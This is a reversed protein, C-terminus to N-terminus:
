SQVLINMTFMNNIKFTSCSPHSKWNIMKYKLVCLALMGSALSTSRSNNLKLSKGTVSSSRILNPMRQKKSSPTTSFNLTGASTLSSKLVMKVIICQPPWVVTYQKRQVTGLGYHSTMSQPINNLCVCKVFLLLCLSYFYVAFSCMQLMLTQMSKIWFLDTNGTKLIRM